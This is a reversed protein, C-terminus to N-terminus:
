SDKVSHASRHLLMGLQRENLCSPRSHERLVLVQALGMLFVWVVQKRIFDWSTIGHSRTIARSVVDPEDVGSRSGQCLTSSAATAVRGTDRKHEIIAM